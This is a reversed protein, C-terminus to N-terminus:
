VNMTAALAPKAQGGEAPLAPGLHTDVPAPGPSKDAKLDSLQHELADVRHQLDTRDKALSTLETKEEATLSELAAMRNLDDRRSSEVIDFRDALNRLGAAFDSLHKSLEFPNRTKEILEVMQEFTMAYSRDILTFPAM